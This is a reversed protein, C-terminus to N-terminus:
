FKQGLKVGFIMPKTPYTRAYAGCITPACVTNISLQGRKDFANQIFVEATWDDRAVGGSFDFTSFGRTPGLTAAEVATLYSRTGTQGQISGQLFSRFDGWDFEYRATASGKWKPQVPLRDGSRAAPAVGPTCVSNGLADFQCFDKTLKADIYTGAASLTWHENPRWIIDGEVGKSRANGANYINTVGQAGVPSLGYQLNKWDEVFIAGNVRLAGELWTTKWGVEYNSITDADYPLVGVRRNNGGPRYGTSYTAYVMKRGGIRWTLNVKHTEGTEKARKDVNQCPIDKAASPVCAASLANGLFGSFGGLTNDTRFGRIGATLTLDPTLDFAAEGFAAYDRDVRAIRTYFIDDGAGPVTFGLGTALLGPVLYNATIQDSQRQAFLGVVGRLRKESPSALRLEHTSKTYVDRGVFRQNPDLFGGQGDPFTVYSTSGAADYAVSYYSYDAQNDVTRGFYSGSYVVDWDALKGQITLAALYWEDLNREPTFDAVKLDGLKPDYLFSGNAEQHQYIVSPTLTWNEDLDIKLAARGGYTTVDNFDKEVYPANNVSLTGNPPTLTFTRTKPVNDIYGGDHEYFGVLRIAAKDGLPINVFGEFQGGTDGEGFKNLQVDYGGVLAKTSPQNTIIRLTGSLSSAGFLTGQPGALAEVRAIDYIHVDVGNAITTVPVEDIYTSSAPQSGGHLGDGGSSIGRFFLQSQGPGYSQFSVSPMLKAYDDFSAVQHNALVEPTLAQVSVAVNQLNESRKTATVIVEEVSPGEGAEAARAGIPVLSTSGLLVTLLALRWPLSETGSPRTM